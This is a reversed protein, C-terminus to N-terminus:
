AVPWYRPAPVKSAVPLNLAAPEKMLRARELLSESALDQSSCKPRVPHLVEATSSRGVEESRETRGRM